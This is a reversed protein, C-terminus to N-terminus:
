YSKRWSIYEQSRDIIIHDHLEVGVLKLTRALSNTSAIDNDSFGLVSGPHNRAIIVYSARRTCAVSIIDRSNLSIQKLDGPIMLDTILEKSANFFLVLMNERSFDRMKAFIYSMLKDSILTVDGIKARDCFYFENVAGFLTLLLAAREGIGNVEQLEAATADFVGSFSGFQRLLQKALPKVDKRPIAYTLILEIVEYDNFGVLRDKAFRSRLRERHGANPNENSVSM